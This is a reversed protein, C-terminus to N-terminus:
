LQFTLVQIDTAFPTWSFGHPHESLNVYVKFDGDAGWDVTVVNVNFQHQGSGKAVFISAATLMQYRGVENTNFGIMVEGSDSSILEFEVNVVFATAIGHFLGSNPTISQITITDPYTTEGPDTPTGKKCGFAILMGILGAILFRHIKAYM